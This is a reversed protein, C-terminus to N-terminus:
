PRKRLVSKAPYLATIEVKLAGPWFKWNGTPSAGCGRKSKRCLARGLDWGLVGCRAALSEQTMERQYRLKRVQPGVINQPKAM